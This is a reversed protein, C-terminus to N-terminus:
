GSYEPNRSIFDELRKRSVARVKEHMYKTRGLLMGKLGFAQRAWKYFSFSDTHKIIKGDRIEFEAHIENVVKRGTLSFTYVATWNASGQLESGNVKDFKLELDSASKALMHWMAKVETSNLNVFVSDSFVAEKSYCEQM